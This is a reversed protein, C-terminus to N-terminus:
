CVSHQSAFESFSPRICSAKLHDDLLRKWPEQYKKPAVYGKGNTVKTPTKLWICHFMHGPIDETMDPLHLPFSDTFRLKMKMDTGKLLEQFVLGEICDQVTAM